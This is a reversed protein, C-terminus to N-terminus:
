QHFISFHYFAFYFFLHFSFHFLFVIFINFFIYSEISELMWLHILMHLCHLFLPKLYIFNNSIKSLRWKRKIELSCNKCNPQLGDKSATKNNYHIIELIEHCNNCEKEKINKRIEEKKIKMTISRKEHSLQKIEKGKSTENFKKLSDSLKIKTEKKIVLCCKPCWMDRILNVARTKWEHNQNCCVTILSNNSLFSFGFVGGDAAVPPM